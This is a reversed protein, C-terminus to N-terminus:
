RRAGAAARLEQVVAACSAQISFSRAVELAQVAMDGRLGEDDLLKRIATALAEADGPPVLLGGGRALIEATGGADTGIVPVGLHLAELTVRGFAETLSPVLAVASGLVVDAPDDLPGVLVVRGTLGRREVLRHLETTYRVDGAGVLWLRLTPREDRLLALAEIAIHQGKVPHLTGVVVLKDPDAAVPRGTPVQAPVPVGDYVVTIPAAGPVGDFQQAVTGSVAILRTSGLRVWRLLWRAPLASRLSANGALVERVHWVHPRRLARAVVAGWPVVLSNTYIVDPRFRSATVLLAPLCVAGAALRLATAAAGNRRALWWASRRVRVPVGASELLGILPGRRPLLALARVDEPLHSVLEHMAREGGALGAAHGIFLVRLQRGTESRAGRRDRHGDLLGSGVARIRAGREPGPRVASTLCECVFRPRTLLVGLTSLGHRQRLGRLTNRARYYVAAPSATDLSGGREHWVHSRCALIAPWGAQGIRRCFDVEEGYHFFSEDMLGATRVAAVRVLLAAGSAVDVAHQGAACGACALLRDRRGQEVACLRHPEVALANRRDWQTSVVVGARRDVAVSLATRLADPSPVTDNNLIWVFDYGRELAVLLGRNNGAAYGGNSPLEVLEIEPHARRITAVSDDDSGNDVVLVDHGVDAAVVADLCRATTTGRRWNLVVVLTRPEIASGTQPQGGLAGAVSRLDTTCTNDKM